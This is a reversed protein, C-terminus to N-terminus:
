RGPYVALLDRVARWWPPLPAAPSRWGPGEVELHHLLFAVGPPVQAGPPLHGGGYRRDGALALGAFAAHLRVQHTVGTTIVAEWTGAELRQLLTEAPFWRGRHPTQPGRRVVMRGAHHRDHALAVDLRHRDWPVERGTVFRYRKRLKKGAFAGRLAELDALTRAVVVVGSTGNDLRHAIGGEFGSPWGVAGQAPAVELLFDLLSAGEGAAEGRPPFVPLGAPKALFLRAGDEGLLAPPDPQLLPDPPAPAM